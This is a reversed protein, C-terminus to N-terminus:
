KLKQAMRDLDKLEHQLKRRNNDILEKMIDEFAYKIERKVVSTVVFSEVKKGAPAKEFFKQKVFELAPMVEQGGTYDPFAGRLDHEKIMQEFLDKKNLILVTRFFYIM